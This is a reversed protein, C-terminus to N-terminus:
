ARPTIIVPLESPKMVFLDIMERTWRSADYGPAFRIDFRQMLLATVVRMEAMALNKGACNAHGASFPIFAQTHHVVKEGGLMKEPNASALWREPMFSDPAPSFYKPNHHLVYPPINM